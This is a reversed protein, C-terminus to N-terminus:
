TSQSVATDPYKDFVYQYVIECKKTFIEREYIPPLHDLTEEICVHVMARTQQKKRWDLVLKDRKLTELLEKAVKKVEAEQAKTLKMEPKTLLDFITLEEETLNEKLARKDEENLENTFEVLKRFFDEINHSGANYEEIMKKLRELFDIRTRNIDVMKRVRQELLKRLREAETRKNQKKLKDSLVALNIQSLDLITPAKIIYGESAISRDLLEEISAMLRTIDVAPDLSKIKIAM